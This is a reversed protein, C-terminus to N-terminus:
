LKFRLEVENGTENFSIKDALIKMLYIGRGKKVVKMKVTTPDPIDKHNFGVGEDKIIFGIEREEIDYSINLLKEPNEGNGHIISNEVAALVAVLIKGYKKKDVNYEICLEDLLREVKTITEQNAPFEYENKM